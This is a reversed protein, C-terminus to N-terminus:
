AHRGHECGGEPRAMRVDVLEDGRVGRCGDLDRRHAVLNAAMVEDDDPRDARAEGRRLGVENRSKDRRAHGRDGHRQPGWEVERRIRHRPRVDARVPM